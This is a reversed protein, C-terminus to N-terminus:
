RFFRRFGTHYRRRERHRRNRNWPLNAWLVEPLRPSKARRLTTPPAKLPIPPAVITKALDTDTFRHGGRINASALFPTILAPAAPRGCSREAGHLVLLHSGQGCVRERPPSIPPRRRRTTPPSHGQHRDDTTSFAVNGSSDQLEAAIKDAVNTIPTTETTAYTATYTDGNTGTAIVTVSDGSSTASLHIGQQRIHPQRDNNRRGPGM